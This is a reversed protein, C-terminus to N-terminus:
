LLLMMKDPFSEQVYNTHAEYDERTAPWGIDTFDLSIKITNYKASYPYDGEFPPLYICHMDIKYINLFDILETKFNYPIELPKKIVKM